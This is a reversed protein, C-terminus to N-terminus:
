HDDSKKAPEGGAAQDIAADTAAKQDMVVGEVARAREETKIMPDFVTKNTSRGHAEADAKAAAEDQPPPAGGCAVVCTLALGALALRAATHM